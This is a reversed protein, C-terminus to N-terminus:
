ASIIENLIGEFKDTLREWDYRDVFKRSKIGEENILNKRFIELAKTLTDEPRSIYSIGNNLGFENILGPLDTAIVPKEAAMYEYLKIPVINRMVDNKYAPLICIDAAALYAPIEEYPIWDIIIIKDNLERQRKLDQLTEWLDGKGLIMMKLSKDKVNALEQAVEKLGSFSYLWGMFFLVIDKEDIGYKERIILRGDSKKFHDTDVGNRVVETKEREAGMVVTYDRLKESISVVKDANKINNSEILRALYRFYPQPVLQNLEDMLYYIFPIGNRKALRFAINANLIGFGIIIDPKFEIIQQKIEKAHTYILSIYNLAPLKIISPRIVIIANDKIAKHVGYFIERNTIFTGDKSNPWGIEYDIVRIEHGRKSLREMLHHSTHPGRNLWDSEQIVLIRM